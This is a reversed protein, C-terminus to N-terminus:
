RSYPWKRSSIAKKLQTLCQEWITRLCFRIWYTLRSLSWVERREHRLGLQPRVFGKYNWFWIGSLLNPLPRPQPQPIMNPTMQLQYNLCCNKSSAHFVHHSSLIMMMDRCLNLPNVGLCLPLGHKGFSIHFTWLCVHRVLTRQKWFVVFMNLM